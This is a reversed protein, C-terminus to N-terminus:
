FKTPSSEIKALDPNGDVVNKSLWAAHGDAFVSNVGNNHPYTFRGWKATSSFSTTDFSQACIREVITGNNYRQLGDSILMKKSPTKINTIKICSVVVGSGNDGGAYAPMFVSNATYNNNKYFFGWTADSAYENDPINQQTPCFFINPSNQGPESPLYGHNWLFVSWGVAIAPKKNYKKLFVGRVAYGHFQDKSDMTYQNEAQGIQRMNNLCTISKGRERAKGLAPLLMGALIAIIAIVVLLEILTFHKKM